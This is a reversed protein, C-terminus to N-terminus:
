PKPAAFGIKISGPRNYIRLASNIDNDHNGIVIHSEGYEGPHCMVTKKGAQFVLETVFRPSVFAEGCGSRSSLPDGVAHIVLKQQDGELKCELRVGGEGVLYLDGQSPIVLGDNVLEPASSTGAYMWTSPVFNTTGALFPHIGDGWENATQLLVDADVVLVGARSGDDGYLPIVSTDVLNSRWEGAAVSRATRDHIDFQVVGNNITIANLYYGNSSNVAHLLADLLVGRPLERDEYTTPVAADSFPYVMQAQDDRWASHLRRAM